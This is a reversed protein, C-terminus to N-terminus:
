GAQGQDAGPGVPGLDHPSTRGVETGVVPRAWQLRQPIPEARADLDTVLPTAVDVAGSRGDVGRLEGRGVPRRAQADLDESARAPLPRRHLAQVQGVAADQEEGVRGADAPLGEGQPARGGEDGVLCAGVGEGQGLGPPGPEPQVAGDQEVAEAIRRRPTRVEEPHHAPLDRGRGLQYRAGAVIQDDLERAFVGDEGLPDRDSAASRQGGVEHIPGHLSGGVAVHGHDHDTGVRVPLGLAVVAPVHVQGPGLVLEDPADHGGVGGGHHHQVRARGDAHVPGPIGRGHNLGPEPALLHGAGQDVHEQALDFGAPPQGGGKRDPQLM